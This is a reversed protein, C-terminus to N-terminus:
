KTKNYNRDASERLFTRKQRFVDVPTQGVLNRTVNSEIVQSRQHHIVSRAALRLTKQVFCLPHFCSDSVVPELVHFKNM